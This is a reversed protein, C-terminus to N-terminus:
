CEGSPFKYPTKLEMNKGFAKSSYSMIPKQAATSFLSTVAIVVAILLYFSPM